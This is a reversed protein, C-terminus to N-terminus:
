CTQRGFRLRDVQDRQQMEARQQAVTQGSGNVTYNSSYNNTTTTTNETPTAASGAGLSVAITGLRAAIISQIRTMVGDIEEM